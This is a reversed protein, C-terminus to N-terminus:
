IIVFSKQTSDRIFYFISGCLSHSVDYVKGFSSLVKCCSDVKNFVRFRRKEPKKSKERILKEFYFFSLGRCLQAVFPQCPEFNSSSHASPAVFTRRGVTTRFPSAKGTDKLARRCHLRCRSKRCWMVMKFWHSDNDRAVKHYFDFIKSKKWATAQATSSCMSYKTKSTVVDHSQVVVQNQVLWQAGNLLTRKSWSQSESKKDLQPVTVHFHSTFQFVGDIM